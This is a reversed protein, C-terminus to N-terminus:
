LSRKKIILIAPYNDDGGGTQVGNYKMKEADELAKRRLFDDDSETRDVYEINIPDGSECTGIRLVEGGASSSSISTVFTPRDSELPCGKPDAIGEEVAMSHASILLM